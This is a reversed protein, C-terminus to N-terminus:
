GLTRETDRNVRERFRERPKGKEPGFVKEKEVSDEPFGGGHAFGGGGFGEGGFEEVEEGKIAM